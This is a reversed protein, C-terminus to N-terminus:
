REPPIRLAPGPVGWGRRRLRLHPLRQGAGTRLLRRRARRHARPDRRLVSGLGEQGELARHHPRPPDDHSGGLGVIRREQQSRMESRVKTRARDARAALLASSGPLNELPSRPPTAESMGQDDKEDTPAEATLDGVPMATANYQADTLRDGLLACLAGSSTGSSAPPSRDSM